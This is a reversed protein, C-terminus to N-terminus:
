MIGHKRKWSKLAREKSTLAADPDNNPKMKVKDRDFGTLLLDRGKAHEPVMVNVERIKEKIEVEYLPKGDKAVWKGWKVKKVTQNGNKPMLLDAIKELVM